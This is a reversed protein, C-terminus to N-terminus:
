RLQPESGIAKRIADILRGEPFPKRLYAVCGLDMCQRRITDDTSGTMFIVPFKFGAAPLQRALDLGSTDGLYIDVILCTVESTAAAGIFDAASAFLVVRYGFGSLLRALAERLNQDDDVVAITHRRVTM